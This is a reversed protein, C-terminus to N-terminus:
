KMKEAVQIALRTKGVGGAGTLTVLRYSQLLAKINRIETERGICPTSPIPLYGIPQLNGLPLHSVPATAPEYDMGPTADKIGLAQFVKRILKEGVPKGQGM